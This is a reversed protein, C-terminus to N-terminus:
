SIISMTRLLLGGVPTEAKVELCSTSSEAVEPSETLNKDDDRVDGLFQSYYIEEIKHM